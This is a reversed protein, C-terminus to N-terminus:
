NDGNGKETLGPVRENVYLMVLNTCYELQEETLVTNQPINHWAELCKRCCTATAHQGYNVIEKGTLPTQRGDMFTHKGIRNKILKAAREKIQAKGRELAHEIAPEDIKTHWFVHRILENKMSKFTFAADKIKNKHVRDWEILDAGCEHCVRESQHKRLSSKKLSFCHLGENCKTSGCSIDLPTLDSVKINDPVVRKFKKREM